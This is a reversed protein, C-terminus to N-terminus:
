LHFSFYKNPLFDIGKFLRSFDYIKPCFRFNVSFSWNSLSIMRYINLAYYSINLVIFELLFRISRIQVLWEAPFWTSPKGATTTSFFFLPFVQIGPTERCDIIKPTFNYFKSQDSRYSNNRRFGPQRNVPPQLTLTRFSRSINM